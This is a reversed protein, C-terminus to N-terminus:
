LPLKEKLPRIKVGDLVFYRNIKMVIVGFLMEILQPM